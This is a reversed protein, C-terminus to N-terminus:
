GHHTCGGHRWRNVMRTPQNEAPTPSLRLDDGNLFAHCSMNPKLKWPDYLLANLISQLVNKSSIGPTYKNIPAKMTHILKPEMWGSQEVM